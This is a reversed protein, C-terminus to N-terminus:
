YRKNHLEIGTYNRFEIITIPKIRLVINSIGPSHSSDILRDPARCLLWPLRERGIPSRAPIRAEFKMKFLPPKRVYSGVKGRHSVPTRGKLGNLPTTPRAKEEKITTM